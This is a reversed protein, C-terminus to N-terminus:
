VVGMKPGLIPTQWVRIGKCKGVGSNPSGSSPTPFEPKPSGFGPFLERARGSRIVLRKVSPNPAFSAPAASAHPVPPQQSATSLGEPQPQPPQAHPAADSRPPHAELQRLAQVAQQMFTEMNLVPTAQVVPQSSSTSAAQVSPKHDPVKPEAKGGQRSAGRFWLELM